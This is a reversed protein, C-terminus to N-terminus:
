FYFLFFRLFTMSDYTKSIATHSLQMIKILKFSLNGNQPDNKTNQVISRNKPKIPNSQTKGNVSDIDDVLPFAKLPAVERTKGLKPMSQNLINQNEAFEDWPLRKSASTRRQKFSGSSINNNADGVSVVRHMNNTNNSIESFVSKQSRASSLNSTSASSSSASVIWEVDLENGFNLPMIMNPIKVAYEITMDPNLSPLKNRNIRYMIVEKIIPFNDINQCEPAQELTDILLGINRDTQKLKSYIVAICELTAHRVNRKIDCLLPVVQNFIKRLSDFKENSYKLLAATIINLLEERAKSNRDKIKELLSELILIPNFMNDITLMLISILAQKIPKSQHTQSMVQRACSCIIKYCQNVNSGLKDIFLSLIKLSGLRIEYNLDDVFNNVYGVFDQYYPYITKIDKINKVIQELQKIAQLRQTEDEGSLKQIILEPVLNFRLSSSFQDNAESNQQSSNKKESQKSKKADFYISQLNLPLKDIQIEFEDEILLKEIKHLCKLASNEFIPNSLKKVLSKIINSFDENKFEETLVINLAHDMFTKSMKHDSNEIGCQIFKYFLSSIDDTIRMYTYILDISVQKLTLQNSCSATIIYPILHINIYADIEEFSENSSKKRKVVNKFYVQIFRLCIRQVDPNITNNILSGLAEYFSDLHRINM